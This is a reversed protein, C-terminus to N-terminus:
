CKRRCSVDFCASMFKEGQSHGEDGERGHEELVRRCLDLGERHVLLAEM